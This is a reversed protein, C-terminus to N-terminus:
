KNNLNDRAVPITKDLYDTLATAVTYGSRCGLVSSWVETKLFMHRATM